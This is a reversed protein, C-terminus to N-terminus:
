SPSPAPTMFPTDGVLDLRFIQDPSVTAGSPILGMRGISAIAASRRPPELDGLHADYPLAVPKRGTAAAILGQAPVFLAVTSTNM